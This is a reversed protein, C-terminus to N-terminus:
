DDNVGEDKMIDRISYDGERELQNILARVVFDSLSDNTKAIHVRIRQNLTKFSNATLLEKNQSTVRPM